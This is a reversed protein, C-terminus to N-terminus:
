KQEEGKPLKFSIPLTFRFDKNGNDEKHPIFKPLSKVIRVAEKDLSPHRGRAVEVEGISGDTNFTIYVIVRGEVGEAKADAPYQLNEEIYKMLAADGGPFTYPRPDSYRINAPNDGVSFLNLATVLMLILPLIRKM